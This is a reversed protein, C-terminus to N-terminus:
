LGLIESAYLAKDELEIEDVLRKFEKYEAQAERLKPMLYEDSMYHDRLLNNQTENFSKRLSKAIVIKTKINM